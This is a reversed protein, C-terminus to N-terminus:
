SSYILLLWTSKLVRQCCKEARVQQETLRWRQSSMLVSIPGMKWICFSLGTVIGARSHASPPAAVSSALFPQAPEPSGDPLGGAEPGAGEREESSM